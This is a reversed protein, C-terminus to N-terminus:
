RSHSITNIQSLSQIGYGSAVSINVANAVASGASNVANMARLGSQAGGSLSVLYSSDIDISSDDVVIYEAQADNLEFAARLSESGDKSWTESSSSTEDQTFLTSTDTIDEIKYTNAGDIDCDGNFALCGMAVVDVTLSPLVLEILLPDVDITIEGALLAVHFEGNVVGGIKDGGGGAPYNFDVTGSFVTNDMRSSTPDNITADIHLTPADPSSVSGITSVEDLILSSQINTVEDFIANSSSSDSSGSESHDSFTNAGRGYNPLSSLRRQDQAVTNVQEIRFPGGGSDVSEPIAIEGDVMARSSFINVGNAVTSESSNVINLARVDLQASDVIVEGKSVLAATSGNGVIAGGNPPPNNSSGATISNLQDPSLEQPAAMATGVSLIVFTTISFSSIFKNVM